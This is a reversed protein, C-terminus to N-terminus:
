TDLTNLAMFGVLPSTFSSGELRSRVLHYSLEQIEEYVASVRLRRDLSGADPHSDDRFLFLDYLRSRDLGVALLVEISEITSRILRRLKKDDGLYFRALESDDDDRHLRILFVIVRTWDRAYRQMTSGEQVGHFAKSQM